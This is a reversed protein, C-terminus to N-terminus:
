GAGDCWGVVGLFIDDLTKVPYYPSQIVKNLDNPDLCIRLKGSKKEVVVISNVWETPEGVKKIVGIKEMRDLEDKCRDRLAVPIKRPPHVVPVADPILHISCEGLISGIGKFVQACEKLVSAETMYSQSQHNEASYTTKVLDFEM